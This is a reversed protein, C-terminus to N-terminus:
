NLIEIQTILIQSGNYDIVNSYLTGVLRVKRGTDRLNIITSQVESEASDIGFTLNQGLDIREFYDDFQAGPDTSWIYGEWTSIKEPPPTSSGPNDVRISVWFAKNANKGLGFIEGDDSWLMWYGYHEGAMDPSTMQVTVDVIEGPDVKAPLGVVQPADMQAGSLFILNYNRNWTCRGINKLRWIKTFDMNSVMRTGDPITIDAVFRVANCPKSNPTPTPEQTATPTATPTPIIETLAPTPSPNEFGFSITAVQGYADVLGKWFFVSSESQVAVTYITDAPAVLNFSVQIVWDESFYQFQSFGVRKTTLEEDRVWILNPSPAMEGYTTRVFEIATESAAEPGFVPPLDLTPENNNTQLVPVQGSMLPLTGCGSLIGASLILLVIIWKFKSVNIFMVVEKFNKSLKPDSTHHKTQTKMETEKRIM